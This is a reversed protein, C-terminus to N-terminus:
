VETLDGFFELKRGVSGYPVTFHQVAIGQWLRSPGQEDYTPIVDACASWGGTGWLLALFWAGRTKCSM